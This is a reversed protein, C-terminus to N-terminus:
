LVAGSIADRNVDCYIDLSKYYIYKRTAVFHMMKNTQLFNM